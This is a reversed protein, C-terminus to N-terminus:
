LGALASVTVRDLRRVTGECVTLASLLDDDGAGTGAAAALTDVAETLLRHAHALPSDSV